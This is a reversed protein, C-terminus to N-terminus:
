RDTESAIRAAGLAVRVRRLATLYKPDDVITDNFPRGLGVPIEEVFRGPRTGMVLVRDALLVAEELSHTTFVISPRRERWLNLLLMRMEARTIEVLAAFPEDMLLVPAGTAFARALAVRQRMGGSLEHPLAKEFGALGVAAILALPSPRKPPLPARNVETLLTVNALVNRWPLLAPDQPVFGIRRNSRAVSPSVDGVAITGSTPTELGAICRLLTTKGCGSAGILVVIEGPAVRLTTPALAEVPGAKTTFAKTLADVHIPLESRIM